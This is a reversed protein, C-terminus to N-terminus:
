MFSNCFTKGSPDNEDSYTKIAWPKELEDFYKTIKAQVLRHEPLNITLCSNAASLISQIQGHIESKSQKWTFQLLRAVFNIANEVQKLALDSDSNAKSENLSLQLLKSMAKACLQIAPPDIIASFPLKAMSVVLTVLSNKDMSSTSNWCKIWEDPYKQVLSLIKKADANKLVQLLSSPKSMSISFSISPKKKVKDQSSRNSNQKLSPCEHKKHGEKQCQFCHM